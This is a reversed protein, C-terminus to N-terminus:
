KSSSIQSWHFLLLHQLTLFAHSISTQVWFQIRYSFVFLFSFYRYLKNFSGNVVFLLNQLECFTPKYFFTHLLIHLLWFFTSLFGSFGILHLLHWRQHFILPFSFPFKLSWLLLNSLELCTRYNSYNFIRFVIYLGWKKCYDFTQYLIFISVVFLINLVTSVGCVKSCKKWIIQVNQYGFYM